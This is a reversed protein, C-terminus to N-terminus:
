ASTQEEPPDCLLRRPAPPTMRLPDSCGQPLTNVKLGLLSVQEYQLQWYLLSTNELGLVWGALVPPQPEGSGSGM